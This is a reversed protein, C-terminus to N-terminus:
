RPTVNGVIFELSDADKDPLRGEGVPIKDLTEQDVGYVNVYESIYPGQKMIVNFNLRPAVREVHDMKKFEELMSDNLLLEEGSSGRGYNWVQIMMLSGSEEIAQMLSRNQGIGISVMVIISATGIVVGLVTLLTRLKRRWLNGTSMRVLDSFRM